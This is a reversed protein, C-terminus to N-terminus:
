RRGPRLHLRGRDDLTGRAGADVRGGAVGAGEVVIRGGTEVRVTRGPAPRGRSGPPEAGSTVTAPGLVGPPSWAIRLPVGLALLERRVAEPPAGLAVVATARDLGLGARLARGRRGDRRAQLSRRLPSVPDGAALARGTALFRRGAASRALRRDSHLAAAITGLHSADLVVVVPRLMRLAGAFRGDAGPDGARPGDAGPEGARPDDAGPLVVVPAGAALSWWTTVLNATADAPDAAVLVPPRATPVPAGGRGATAGAGIPESAAEAALEPDLWRELSRLAWVAERHTFRHGCAVLAPSAPDLGAVHQEFRDPHRDDIAAGEVALRAADLCRAGEVALDAADLCRAGEVALDAADLCRAGEEAPVGAPGGAAGSVPAGATGAWGLVFPADPRGGAVSREPTPPGVLLAAGAALVAQEAAIREAAGGPAVVVEVGPGVGIDCLGLALVRARRAVDGWTPTAGSSPLEVPAPLERHRAVRRAFHAPLTEADLPSGLSM